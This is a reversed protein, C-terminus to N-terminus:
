KNTRNLHKSEQTDQFGKNNKLKYIFIVATFLDQEGKEDDGDVLRSWFVSGNQISRAATCIWTCSNADTDKISCKDSAM